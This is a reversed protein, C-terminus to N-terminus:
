KETVTGKVKDVYLHLHSVRQSAALRRGTWLPRCAPCRQLSGWTPDHLSLLDLNRPYTQLM